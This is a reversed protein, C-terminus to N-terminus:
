GCTRWHRLNKRALVLRASRASQQYSCAQRQALEGDPMDRDDVSQQWLGLSTRLTAFGALIAPTTISSSVLSFFSITSKKQNKSKKSDIIYCSSKLFKLLNIKWFRQFRLTHFLRLTLALSAPRIRKIRVIQPQFLFAFRWNTWNTHNTNSFLGCTRM